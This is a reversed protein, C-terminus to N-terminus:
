GRRIPVVKGADAAAEDVPLAEEVVPAAIRRLMAELRSQLGLLGDADSTYKIARRILDYPVDDLSQSIPIVHKALTHAIGTKYMVNADKGSMDVVVVRSHFVLNFADQMVASEEWVDHGRLCHLQAGNCALQVSEFVRSFDKHMPMVVGVLDPVVPLEPNTFIRPAPIARPSDRRSLICLVVYSELRKFARLDNTAIFRLISLVDAPYTESEQSLNLLLKPYFRLVESQQRVQEVNEWDSVEFSELIKQRLVLLRRKLEADM